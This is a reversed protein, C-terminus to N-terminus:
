QALKTLFRVAEGLQDKGKSKLRMYPQRGGHIFIDSGYEAAIGAIKEPGMNGGGSYEFVLRGQDQKVRHIGKKEALAKILATEVLNLTAKPIEGFRDLLEDIVESRDDSDRISAIKKYMQLKVLEDSIYDGPIFAEVPLEISVEIGEHHSIEGGSLERVADEVLKCYLEYGITLMHGHQETGLLNGAGRIELDRMSIHFGAGFETFERIARLRKEAIESLVKNKKYMLYAYAMRNSRGVRGRLQYLQSLGFRDADLIIITNANPIDLGSEIITTSVLVNYENNVFKLMVDELLKEDMQGHTAAVSAGPVLDRIQSAVKQIGRIRNYVVYVQGGRDLEREITERLVGDEQEMVYTQVPYREEPPEEILSMDRIGVLSMHLTRPIPTASLTLVDVDKRLQKIAEKHQVGFRQEEDIVLLGLDKFAVDKSLLRHTGILIDIEGRKVKALIEKQKAETRFRSLMEVKFPFSEFRDIFTYYHQNALLTTPVLVAAQKGDAACKFVARAAVETKGYGVDGCLLRDMPFPKEMDRKIERISRLQDPTEEYPFLSEFERQWLNDKSFAHGKELQRAASLELLEKAMDQIAQQARIKTKKWEGGALKNIKPAAGDAGVYKQVIDMQEVPIYLMDEGAYKIKLYDKKIGQIDLQVIGLFKGIGHNEHVVYDGERIDTFAKIGRRGSSEKGSKKQKTSLFIDKDSIIAIKEEPFEIGGSLLGEFVDVKEAKGLRSTFDQMNKAREGSSCVISVRYGLKLYREIETGLFDMRGNFVTGQKSVVPVLAKLADIDKLQKQFPTFLFVPKERYIGLFDSYGSFALFDEPVAEGRELLAKFDETYENERQKVSDAARDPDDLLIIGDDNLYDWLYDTKEYIFHLYYELLQLNTATELSEIIHGQRSLLRERKEGPLKKEFAQYAAKVRGAAQPFLHESQIILRAPFVTVSEIERLSRQTLPDFYRISDIEIDFFEVRVPHLLDPPFIDLIGGRIVYQGKAEVFGTREYGMDALRRKLNELDVTDGRKLNVASGRFLGAPPLKRLAGLASTVVICSKDSCMASMAGLREVLTDQSKADFAISLGTEEPLIYIKRDTFLSLDKALKGAGSFSPAILLIQGKREAAIVGAIAATRSESVGSICCIGSADGALQRIRSFKGSNNLEIM